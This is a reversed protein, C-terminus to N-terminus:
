AWAVQRDRAAAAGGAAAPRPAALALVCCAAFGAPLAQHSSLVIAGGRQLHQQAQTALWACSATDLADFPEDLLWLARPQLALAALGIKRRQGASLQQVPRQAPVDLAQLVTRRAAAAAPAGALALWHGLNALADLEEAWPGHHGLWWCGGAQLTASRQLTGLAPPRLGALTRLLTTKGCGNPGQVHWAEGARLRLDLPGWLRQGHRVGVLRRCDLLCDTDPTAPTVTTPRTAPGAAPAVLPPWPLRHPM